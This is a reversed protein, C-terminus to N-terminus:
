QGAPPLTHQLLAALRVAARLIQRRLTRYHQQVYKESINNDPPYLGAQLILAQTENHWREVVTRWEAEARARL